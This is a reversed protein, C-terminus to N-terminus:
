GYLFAGTGANTYYQNNKKDYLCAVLSGNLVPIFDRVLTGNDYIKCNYLKMAIKGGATDTATHYAYLFISKTGDKTATYSSLSFSSNDIKYTKDKGNFDIIHDATTNVTVGTSISNGADNQYSFAYKGSGNRYTLYVLDGYTGFFGMQNVNEVIRFQMYVRTTPKPAFGTDIFQTSSSELYNCVRGKGAYFEGTGENYYCRDTVKDYLCPRMNMDLAPVYDRVLTQGGWIKCAYLKFSNNFTSFRKQRDVFLYLSGNTEGSTTYTGTKLTGNVTVNYTNPSYEFITKNIGSTLGTQKVDLAGINLYFRAENSTTTECSFTKNTNSNYNSILCYRNNTVSEQFDMEIKFGTTYNPTFGTDIYQTTGVNEIYEIPIYQPVNNASELKHIFNNQWLLPEGGRAVGGYVYMNEMGFMLYYIENLILEYRNARQYNMTTSPTYIPNIWHYGRMIKLINQRIRELNANDRMDTIYWDTKTTINIQYGLTALDDVLKKCWMEVRNLDSANYQGKLTANRVDSATRDFILGREYCFFEGVGQNYAFTNTTTDFLCAVGNDDLVPIYNRVLINNLYIKFSYM